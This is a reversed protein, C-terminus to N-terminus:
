TMKFKRGAMYNPNMLRTQKVHIFVSSASYLMHKQNTDGPKKMTTKKKKKTGKKQSHETLPAAEHSADNKFSFGLGM